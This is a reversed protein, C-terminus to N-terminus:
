SVSSAFVLVFNVNGLPSSTRFEVKQTLNKRFGEGPGAVRSWGRGRPLARAVGLTSLWLFLELSTLSSTPSV